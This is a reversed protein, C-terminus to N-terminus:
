NSDGPYDPQAEPRARRFADLIRCAADVARLHPYPDLDCDFRRANALQPALHLDAWGPADGFCFRWDHPRAALTAELATMALAVWHRYWGGVGTESVGMRAALYARVRNNNIPHLDSAILQAFARAQARLVPDAPLLPTEPHMEELYELIATSQAIVQGGVRLAPLLGQPNLQQYEGPSLSGVAIYEYPLRKLNLAIRVREGASNRWRSYLQM